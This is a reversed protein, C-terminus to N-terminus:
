WASALATVIVNDKSHILLISTGGTILILKNFLLDSRLYLQKLLKLTFQHRIM